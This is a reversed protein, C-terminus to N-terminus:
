TIVRQGGKSGLCTRANRWAFWLWWDAHALRPCRARPGPGPGPSPRSSHSCAIWPGLPSLHPHAFVAGPYSVLGAGPQPPARGCTRVQLQAQLLRIDQNEKALRDLLLAM